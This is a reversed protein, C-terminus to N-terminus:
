QATAWRIAAAVAMLLAPAAWWWGVARCVPRLAVIGAAAGGALLTLVCSLAIGARAEDDWGGSPRISLATCLFFSAILYLIALPVSVVRRLCGEDGPVDPVGPVERHEATM